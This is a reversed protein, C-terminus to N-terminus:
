FLACFDSTKWLASFYLHKSFGPGTVQHLEFIEYKNIYIKSIIPGRLFLAGKKIPAILQQAQFRGTPCICLYYKSLSELVTSRVKGM